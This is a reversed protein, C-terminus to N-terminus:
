PDSPLPPLFSNIHDLTTVDFVGVTADMWRRVDSYPDMMGNQVKLARLAMVMDDARDMKVYGVLIGDLLVSLYDATLSFSSPQVLGFLSLAKIIAAQRSPRHEDLGTSCTAPAAMHNLLGCPAGDPTHVPCLFGWNDPQLKRVDTTRLTTFFQGRHIGRFHAMFRLYNLRDAVIAFGSTQRMDLGSSSVLNGTALFMEMKRGVDGSKDMAWRLAQESHLDLEPKRKLEKLLTIKVLALWEQLKEKLIQLILHGPLLAEQTSPSDANEAMAEGSALGYAKRIMYIMLNFKAEDNDLHVFLVKNLMHVGVDYDTAYVPLDVTTRFLAGVHSLCEERTNAQSAIESSRWARLMGEVRDTVFTNDHDGQVILQYIERDTTSKWARLLLSAPLFYNQKKWLFRVTCEGNHLFHLANSHSSEDDRVCRIHVVHTSFNPGSQAYHARTQALPYNRRQVALMRCVKENGNIIFYGGQETEEEGQSTLYKRVKTAYEQQKEHSSPMFAENVKSKDIPKGNDDVMVPKPITELHRTLNCKKSRVMIPLRGMQRLMYRVGGRAVKYSKSADGEVMETVTMPEWGIKVNFPSSYTTGALRCDRPMVSQEALKNCPYNIEASEIWVVDM